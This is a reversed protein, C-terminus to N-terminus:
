YAPASTTLARTSCCNKRWTWRHRERLSVLQRWSRMTGVTLVKVEWPPGQKRVHKRTCTSSRSRGFVVTGPWPFPFYLDSTLPRFLLGEGDGMEEGKGQVRDLVMDDQSWGAVLM